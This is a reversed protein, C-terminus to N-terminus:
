ENYKGQINEKVYKFAPSCSDCGAWNLCQEGALRHCVAEDFNTYSGLNYNRYNLTIIATWKDKGKDLSVGKIGSINNKSNGKNRNQCQSSVERLNKIWNHHRIRDKHDIQNEPMYGYVYFWAIRHTRYQKSLICMKFYGSTKDLTGAITGIGKMGQKSIKWYFYGTWPNYMVQRILEKHTLDKM